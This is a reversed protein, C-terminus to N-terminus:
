KKIFDTSSGHKGAKVKREIERHMEPPIHEECYTQGHYNHLDIEWKSCIDCRINKGFEKRFKEAENLYQIYTENRNLDHIQKLREKELIKRELAKIEELRIREAQERELRIREAREETLRIQEAQQKLRKREAREEDVRIEELRIREAWQEKIKLEEIEREEISKKQSEIRDDYLIPVSKETDKYTKSIEDFAKERKRDEALQKTLQEKAKVREKHKAKIEALSKEEWDKKRKQDEALQEALLKEVETQKEKKEKFLTPTIDKSKDSKKFINKINDFLKMLYHWSLITNSNIGNKKIRLFPCIQLLKLWHCFLFDCCYVNM